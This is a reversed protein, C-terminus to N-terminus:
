SVVRAFSFVAAGGPQSLSAPITNGAVKTTQDNLIYGSSYAFGVVGTNPIGDSSLWRGTNQTPVNLTGASVSVFYVVFYHDYAPDIPLAITDLTGNWVGSSFTITPNSTGGIKVATVDAIVNSGRACRYLVLKISATGAGGGSILL